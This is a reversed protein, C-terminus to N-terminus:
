DKEGEGGRGEGRPSPPVTSPPLAGSDGEARRPPPSNEERPRSRHVRAFRGFPLFSRVRYELILLIMRLGLGLAKLPDGTVSSTGVRKTYNVPIQVMTQGYLLSLLMMEPGFFSGGVRFQPEIEKLARRRILRMTCGVDTLNTGNFLFEMLKAVAWNGWRLFVGMNAGTWIFQRYTRSGYVVDFDESYALLKVVDHGRFTGDPEAVVILDGTVERFGRRIAYGYGQKPEHVLRATTRRVAEDTGPAANNNVVLVEDVYGAAQFEIIADYISSAENYTPFVVSVRESRWM